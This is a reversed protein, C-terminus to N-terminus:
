VPNPIDIFEVELPLEKAIQQGLYMAGYRETAHHGAAIYAIDMERAIHTTQESVEGSIFLDAGQDAAQEIFSQGGGTCWAVREITKDGEGIVLPKRQLVSALNAAFQELDGKGSNIGRMVVGEPKIGEVPKIDTVGLLKGLMANNGFVPHVDLPLHYAFLNIDHQLLAKIRRHKMGVIVPNENKWFFGHHVLIADAKQAIAADILAQSATVGTVIKKIDSKGQVQLGNPCYDKILQPKLQEDLWALLATNKM